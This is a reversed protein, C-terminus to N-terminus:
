INFARRLYAQQQHVYNPQINQNFSMDLSRLRSELKLSEDILGQLGLPLQDWLDNKYQESLTNLCLKAKESIVNELDMDGEIASRMLLLWAAIQMLRTSAAMTESIYLDLIEQELNQMIMHGCGEIYSSMREILDMAESYANSFITQYVKYEIKSYSHVRFFETNVLKDM